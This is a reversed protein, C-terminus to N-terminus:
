FKSGDWQRAETPDRKYHIHHRALQSCTFSSKTVKCCFVVIKKCGRNWSMQDKPPFCGAAQRPVQNRHAFHVQHLVVDSKTASFDLFCVQQPSQGKLHMAGGPAHNMTTHSLQRLQKVMSSPVLPVGKRGQAIERHEQLQNVELRRGTTDTELDILM